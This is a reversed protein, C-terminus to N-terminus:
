NASIGISGLLLNWRTIDAGDFTLQYRELKVRVNKRVIDSYVTQPGYGYFSQQGTIIGYYNGDAAQSLEKIFQVESWEIKTSTYPLFKLQTLYQRLPYRRATPRSRSNVEITAAPMFLRLAQEIANDKEAISLKKDTIINLYSVFEEVRQLARKRYFQYDAESLTLQNSEAAVSSTIAPTSVKPAIVAVTDVSKTPKIPEVPKVPEVSTTTQVPDPKSVQTPLNASPSVVIPTALDSEIQKKVEALLPAVEDAQHFLVHRGDSRLLCLLEGTSISAAKGDRTQYNVLQDNQYVIKGPIVTLPIAKILYDHGGLRLPASQFAWLRQEALALDDGLESIVLFNGTSSFAMLVNQRQFTLPTPRGQVSFSIKNDSVGTLRANDVRNGSTMYVVDQALLASRFTFIFFASLLFHKM